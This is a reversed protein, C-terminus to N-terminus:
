PLSYLNDQQWDRQLKLSARRLLVGARMFGGGIRKNNIHLSIDIRMESKLTCLCIHTHASANKLILLM